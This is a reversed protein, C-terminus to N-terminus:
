LHRLLIIILALTLFAQYNEIKVDRRTHVRRFNHLWSNSREVVWRHRALRDRPREIVRNARKRRIKPTGPLIPEGRSRRRSIVPEIRRELLGERQPAGDYGRDAWLEGPRFGAAILQDVLPFLFRRENASGSSVCVAM